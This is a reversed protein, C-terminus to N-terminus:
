ASEKETLKNYSKTIEKIKDNLADSLPTLDVDSAKSMSNIYDIQRSIDIIRKCYSIADYKNKKYEANKLAENKDFYLYTEENNQYHINYTNIINEINELMHKLEEYSNLDIYYCTVTSDGCGGINLKTSRTVNFKLFKYLRNLNEDITPPIIFSIYLKYLDKRFFRKEAYYTISLINSCSSVVNDYDRNWDPKEYLSDGNKYEFIISPAWLLDLSCYGGSFTPKFPEIVGKIYDNDFSKRVREKYHMNEGRARDM